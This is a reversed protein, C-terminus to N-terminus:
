RSSAHPRAQERRLPRHRGDALRTTAHKARRAALGAALAARGARGNAALLRVLERREPAFNAKYAEEGRLFDVEAFGRTCADAIIEALLLATADRWRFDTLRASQYLSLRGAVEFTVMIAVVTDGTTLEHVAVEDAEAGLRCAAAFRPYSPLFRSGTGWQAEHLQRLDALSRLASPGRHMRHAVGAAKMRASAQRLNRRFKTPRAALYVQADAPLPAWPAAAVPERHVRALVTTLMTSLLSDAPIGSFDLLRTGPRRLWAGALRAVTTEEGPAALLDVHDPCLPGGSMVRLCPLGFWRGQDLALGGLLAGDQVVLLFHRRPGGAGTLWWSRMFPTPLPSLDVLRDWQGAWGDLQPLVLVGPPPSSVKERTAREHVALLV